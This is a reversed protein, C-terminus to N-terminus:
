RQVRRLWAGRGDGFSLSLSGVICAVILGRSFVGLSDVAFYQHLAGYSTPRAAFGMYGTGFFWNRSLPSQLFDSFPWQVISLALTFVVSAALASLWWPWGRTNQWFLDLLVAPVLLLLPFSPPIFHTVQHFIPGLKPEAPFLPLVLILGIRYVTYFGCVTTAAWRFDSGRRAVGILFLTFLAIFIYAQHMHLFKRSTFETILVQEMVLLVCCVYLFLARYLSKVEVEIARNQLSAIFILTGILVGFIGIFLAIHPPSMVRVDLGYANHWWNDFPGSTLMTIGGWGAIFAGLPGRLGLIKVSAARLSTGAASFTTKLILYGYAAGALVGCMYIAIHAPTWFTDRGISIHWSIDWQVGIMVSTIGALTCWVYWPVSTLTSLRRESSTASTQLVVADTM